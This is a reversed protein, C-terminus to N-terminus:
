TRIGAFLLGGDVVVLSGTMYRADESVLFAVVDAIEEPEALRGFPIRREREIRADGDLMGKIIGAAVTGPLIANVRVGRPALEFAMVRTLAELAAKSTAYAAQESHAIHAAVSGMNVVSGRGARVMVRCVEQAVVFAGTVNVALVDNWAEDSLELFPARRGIGANNVLISVGGHAEVVGSVAAQVEDRRTVDCHVLEARRGAQGLEGAITEAARKDKDFIIVAAGDAALRRAIASGIGGGGGTVIAVERGLRGEVREDTM